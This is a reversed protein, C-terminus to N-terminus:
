FPILFLVSDPRGSEASPPTCRSQPSEVVGHAPYLADSIRFDLAEGVPALPKLCEVGVIALSPVLEPLQQFWFALVEVQQGAVEANSIIAPQTGSASHTKRSRSRRRRM